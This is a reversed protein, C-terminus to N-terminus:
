FAARSARCCASSTFEPKTEELIQRIADRDAPSLHSFEPRTDEGTLVERLRKYVYSKVAPPMADFSESYILFSLPYRFLRQTLDLDRLSRGQRDRKGQQSFEAAFASTGAVPQALPAEKVFLMARVLREGASEIRVRAGESQVMPSESGRSAATMKDDYAARRTEYTAATILNHISTQHALVM